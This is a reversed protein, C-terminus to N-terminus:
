WETRSARQAQAALEPRPSTLIVSPCSSIIRNGHRAMGNYQYNKSEDQFVLLYPYTASQLRCLPLLVSACGAVPPAGAVFLLIM